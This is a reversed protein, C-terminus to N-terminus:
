ETSSCISHMAHLHLGAPSSQCSQLLVLLSTDTHGKNDNIIMRDIETEIGLGLRGLLVDCGLQM